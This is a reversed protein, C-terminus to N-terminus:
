PTMFNVIEYVRRQDDHSKCKTQKNIGPLLFSFKFFFLINESYSKYAWAGACLRQGQDLSIVIKTFGRKTMMVLCKTEISYAGSYFFNKFFYMIKVIKVCCDSGRPTPTM